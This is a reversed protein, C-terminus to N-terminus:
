VNLHNVESGQPLAGLNVSPSQKLPVFYFAISCSLMEEELMYIHESTCIQMFDVCVCMCVCVCAYICVCVCACVYMCRCIYLSVLVLYRFCSSFTGQTKQADTSNSSLIVDQLSVFVIGRANMLFSVEFNNILVKMKSRHVNNKEEVM